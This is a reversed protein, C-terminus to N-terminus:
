IYAEVTLIGDKRPSLVYIIENLNRDIELEIKISISKDINIKESDGPEVTVNILNVDPLYKTIQSSIEGNLTTMLKDTLFDFLYLNIGVGM